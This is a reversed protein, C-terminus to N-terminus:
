VQDVKFHDDYQAASATDVNEILNRLFNIERRSNDLLVRPDDSLPRFCNPAMVMALNASDMRTASSVEPASFVQLFRLLHILCRRNLEPLSDVLSVSEEVNDSADLFKLKWNFEQLPFNKFPFHSKFRQRWIM